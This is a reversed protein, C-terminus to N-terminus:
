GWPDTQQDGGSRRGAERRVALLPGVLLAVPFLLAWWQASFDGVLVIGIVLFVLLSVAFVARGMLRQSASRGTRRVPNM